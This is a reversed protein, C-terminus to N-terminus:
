TIERGSSMISLASATGAGFTSIFGGAAMVHGVVEPCTYTEGPAIARTSIVTNDDGATDGSVVLNIEITAASAATTNTVTCKDIICKTSAPVTYQTAAGAAVVIGPIINKVTVTM